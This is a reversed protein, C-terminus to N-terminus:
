QYIAKVQDIQSKSFEKEILKAIEDHKRFVIKSEHNEFSKESQVFDMLDRFIPLGGTSKKVEKTEQILKTVLLSTTM